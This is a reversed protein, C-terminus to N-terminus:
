KEAVKKITIKLEPHKASGAAIVEEIARTTSKAFDHAPADEGEVELTVVLRIAKKMTAPAEGWQELTEGTAQDKKKEDPSPGKDTREDAM